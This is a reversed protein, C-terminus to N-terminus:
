VMGLMCLHKVKRKKLVLDYTGKRSLLAEEAGGVALLVARRAMVALAEHVTNQLCWKTVCTPVSLTAIATHRM